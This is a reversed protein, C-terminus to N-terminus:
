RQATRIIQKLLQWVEVFVGYSSATWVNYIATKHANVIFLLMFEVSMCYAHLEQIAQLSWKM